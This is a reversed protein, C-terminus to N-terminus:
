GLLVQIFMQDQAPVRSIGITSRLKRRVGAGDHWGFRLWIRKVVETQVHIM